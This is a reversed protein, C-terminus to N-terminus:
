EDGPAEAKSKDAVLPQYGSVEPQFDIDTLALVAYILVVALLALAIFMQAMIM